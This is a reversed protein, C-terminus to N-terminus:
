EYSVKLTGLRALADSTLVQELISQREADKKQAIAQSESGASSINPGSTTFGDPIEEPRVETSLNQPNM